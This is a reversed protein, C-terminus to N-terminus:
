LRNFYESACNKGRQRAGARARKGSTFESLAHAHALCLTLSSRNISLSSSGTRFKATFMDRLVLPAFSVLGPCRGPDDSSFPCLESPARSFPAASETSQVQQQRKGLANGQAPIAVPRQGEARSWELLETCARTATCFPEAFARSSGANTRSSETLARSPEAFARSSGASTRSSETLARSPEAFACSSGANTCSSIAAACSPEAFGRSFGPAQGSAQATWGPGAVKTDRAM